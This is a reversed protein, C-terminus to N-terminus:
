DYRVSILLHKVASHPVLRQDPYLNNDGKFVYYTGNPLETKFVIRHLVLKNKWKYIAVDGVHLKDNAHVVIFESEAGEVILPRMSGTTEVHYIKTINSDIPTVKVNLNYNLAQALAMGTISLAIFLGLILFISIKKNM